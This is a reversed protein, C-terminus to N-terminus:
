RIRYIRFYLSTIICVTSWLFTRAFLSIFIGVMIWVSMKNHIYLCCFLDPYRIKQVTQTNERWVALYWGTTCIGTVSLSLARTWFLCRVCGITHNQWQCPHFYWRMPVPVRSNRSHTKDEVSFRLVSVVCVDRTKRKQCAIMKRVSNEAIPCQAAPKEQGAQRGVPFLSLCPVPSFLIYPLGNWGCRCVTNRWQRELCIQLNHFGCGINWPIYRVLLFIGYWVTLFALSHM